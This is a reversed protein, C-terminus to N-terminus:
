LKATARPLDYRGRKVGVLFGNWGDPEITLVVAPDPSKSDRIGVAGELRALEVCEEKETSRSSKVWRPPPATWHQQPCSM